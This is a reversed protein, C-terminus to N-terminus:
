RAVLDPKRKILLLKMFDVFLAEQADFLLWKGDHYATAADYSDAIASSFEDRQAEFHAQEAKGFIIMFGLTNENLLLSCITKSGKRFKKEYVWKKGGTHWVTDLTYRDNISTTLNESTAFLIGGLLEQLTQKDPAEIIM